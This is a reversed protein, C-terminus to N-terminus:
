PPRHWRMVNLHCIGPPALELAPCTSWARQVKIMTIMAPPKLACHWHNTPSRSGWHVSIFDSFYLYIIYHCIDCIRWVCIYIYIYICVYVTFHVFQDNSGDYQSIMDNAEHSEWSGFAHAGPQWSNQFPWLWRDEGAFLLISLCHLVFSCQGNEYSNRRCM